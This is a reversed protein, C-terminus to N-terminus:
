RGGPLIGKLGGPVKDGLKEELLRDAAGRLAGEADVSVKPSDLAGKLTMPLTGDEGLYKKLNENKEILDGLGANITYDVTGDLGTSGSLSIDVGTGELKMNETKIRGGELAFDSSMLKVELGQSDGDGLNLASMDGAGIAKIANLMQVLVGSMVTGGELKVNGKGSVDRRLSELDLGSGGFDRLEFGLTGTLTQPKDGLLPLFYGLSPVNAALAADDVVLESVKFPSPTESLDANAKMKVDGGNLEFTMDLDLKGSNWTVEGDIGEMEVRTGLPVDVYLIRGNELTLTATVDPPPGKEGEPQPEPAKEAAKELLDDFNFRGNEDRVIVIRPGDV